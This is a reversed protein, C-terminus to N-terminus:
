IIDKNQILFTLYRMWEAVIQVLTRKVSALIMDFALIKNGYQKYLYKKNKHKNIM